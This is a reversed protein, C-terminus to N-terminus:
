GFAEREQSDGDPAIDPGYLHRYGQKELLNIAFEEIPSETIRTM